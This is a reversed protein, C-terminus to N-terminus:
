CRFAETIIASPPDWDRPIEKNKWAKTLIKHLLRLDDEGLAKLMEAGIGYDGPSKGLKCTQVAKQVENIDIDDDVKGKDSQPLTVQEGHLVSKFHELWIEMIGVEKTAM